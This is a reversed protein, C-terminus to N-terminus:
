ALWVMTRAPAPEARARSRGLVVEGTYLFGAKCLVEGSAPNDSFHRAMVYRRSWDRSAWTLAGLVAETAFGRGRHPAGIWYGLETRGDEMPHFGLMGILQGDHDIAFSARTTADLEVARDLFERADEITYPHPISSTMRAIELDGALAALRDADRPTPARLALRETEVIPSVDHDVM